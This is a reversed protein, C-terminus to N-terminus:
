EAERLLAEFNLPATTMHVKLHVHGIDTGALITGAGPYKANLPHVFRTVFSSHRTIIEPDAVTLFRIRPRLGCM